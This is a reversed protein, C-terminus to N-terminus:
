PSPPREIIIKGQPDRALKVDASGLLRAIEANMRPDRKDWLKKAQDIAWNVLTAKHGLAAATGGHLMDAGTIAGQDEAVREATQSGGLIKNATRPMVTEATVSDIFKTYAAESEFFPRLQQRTSTSGYQTGAVRDFEGALPGRKNAIDRLMQGIGLRAFERDNPSMEALRAANQEPSRKLADMGVQIADLSRSPGSWADLAEGYKKNLDRLVGVFGSRTIDAARGYTDLNLKKTIPDRYAEVVNDIGRKIYDLTQWTPVRKLVPEGQENLDIGLTEMDVGEEAAIKRANAMGARVSPRDMLSGIAGTPAMEDPNIPPQEYATKYKPKAADKRAAMLGEQADYAGEAGFAADIDGTLREVSRANRGRLAQTMTESAEGGSRAMRGALKQVGGQFVDPLMMPKGSARAKNLADIAEQATTPGAENLRKTVAKEARTSAGLRKAIAAADEYPMANQLAPRQTFVTGTGGEPIPRDAVSPVKPIVQGLAQATASAEPIMVKPNFESPRVAFAAANLADVGQPIPRKGLASQGYGYAATFPSMLLHGLGPESPEFAKVAADSKKRLELEKRMQAGTFPVDWPLGDDKPAAPSSPAPMDGAPVALHDPMDSAPVALNDPLDDAPVPM